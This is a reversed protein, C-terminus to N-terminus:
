RRDLQVYDIRGPEDGAPLERESIKFVKKSHSGNKKLHYVAYEIRVRAGKASQM